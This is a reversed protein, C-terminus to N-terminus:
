VAGSAQFFGTILDVVWHELHYRQIGLFYFFRRVELHLLYFLQVGKEGIIRAFPGYDGYMVGKIGSLCIPVICVQSFMELRDNIFMADIQHKLAM